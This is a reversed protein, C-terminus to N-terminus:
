KGVRDDSLSSGNLYRWKLRIKLFPRQPDFGCTKTKGKLHQALTSNDVGCWQAAEKITNFIKRNNICEVKIARPNNQGKNLESLKQKTEESHKRDTAKQRIKQKTKQSLPKNYRPHKTKDQFRRKQAQSMKRKTEQSAKYGTHGLGGEDLNYFNYSQLANYEKIWYKQRELAEEETKCFEIIQKLFIDKGYKKKIERIIYGSGMYNDDLNNTSHKGIYRRGSLKNTLIYIYNYLAM